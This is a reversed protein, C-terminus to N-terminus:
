GARAASETTAAGQLLLAQSAFRLTANICFTRTFHPKRSDRRFAERMGRLMASAHRTNRSRTRKLM